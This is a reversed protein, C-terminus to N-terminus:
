VTDSSEFSIQFLISDLSYALKYAKGVSERNEFWHVVLLSVALKHLDNLDDVDKGTANKIFTKAALILSDLLSNDDAGDIRLYEKVHELM